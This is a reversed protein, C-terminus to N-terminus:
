GFGGVRNGSSAIRIVVMAELAAGALLVWRETVFSLFPDPVDLHRGGTMVAVLKAISTAFLVLACIGLFLSVAIHRFLKM